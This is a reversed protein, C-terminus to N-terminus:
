VSEDLINKNNEKKVLKMVLEVIKNYLLKEDIPKAIHDNMGISKCKSLDDSTVDATLAIIPIKSNMKNRIYDTAEFGNMVPMQLDMLIIDYSDTQLKEIAEKGDNAVDREFGLDDLLIKILLQNLAVDEVVLVKIKKDEADLKIIDSVIEIGAKTKQFSLTFSFTSGQNVKSKVNIAGGQREVLQKVIALGLGTGGFVRATSSTAQQFNEFITSILDEEIGIGTDSVVFEITVREEDENLLHTSVIIEGKTTFKIANSVLNLVIQNLRASDGILIKPITNDYKQILKLNKEKFKLDFIHLM